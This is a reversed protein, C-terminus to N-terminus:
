DSLVPCGPCLVVDVSAGLTLFGLEMSCRMCCWIARKCAEEWPLSRMPEKSRRSEPPQTWDAPAGDTTCLRVALLADCHHDAHVNECFRYGAVWLCSLGFTWVLYAVQVWVRNFLGGVHVEYWRQCDIRVCSFFCLTSFYLSVMERQGREVWGRRRWLCGESWMQFVGEKLGKPPESSNPKDEGFSVLKKKPPNERCGNLRLGRSPTFVQRSRARLM